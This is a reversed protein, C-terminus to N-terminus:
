YYTGYMDGSTLWRQELGFPFTTSDHSLRRSCSLSNLGKRGSGVAWPTRHNRPVVIDIELRRATETELQHAPKYKRRLDLNDSCPPSTGKPVAKRETSSATTSVNEFRSVRELQKNFHRRKEASIYSIHKPGAIIRGRARHARPKSVAVIHKMDQMQSSPKTPRAASKLKQFM